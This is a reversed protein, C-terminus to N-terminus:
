GPVPTQPGVSGAEHAMAQEFWLSSTATAAADPRPAIRLVPDAGRLSSLTRTIM